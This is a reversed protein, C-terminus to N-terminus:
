AVGFRPLCQSGGAAAAAAATARPSTQECKEFMGWSLLHGNTDKEHLRLRLKNVVVVVIIFITATQNVTM